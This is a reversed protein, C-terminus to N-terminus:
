EEERLTQDHNMVRVTLSVPALSHRARYVISFGGTGLPAERVDCRHLSQMLSLPIFDCNASAITAEIM